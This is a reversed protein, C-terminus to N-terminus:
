KKRWAAYVAIAAILLGYGWIGGAPVTPTPPPAPAAGASQILVFGFVLSTFCYSLSKKFALALGKLMEKMLPAENLPSKTATILNLLIM